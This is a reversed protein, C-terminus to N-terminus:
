VDRRFFFHIPTAPTTSLRNKGYTAKNQLRRTLSSSKSIVKLYLLRCFYIWFEIQADLM